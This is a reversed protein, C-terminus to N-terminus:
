NNFYASAARRVRDDLNLGVVLARWSSFDEVRSFRLLNGQPNNIVSSLAQPSASVLLTYSFSSSQRGAAERLAGSFDPNNGAPTIERISRKAADRDSAGDMRGSYIVRASSGASWITVRDGTALINDLRTSVWASVEDKVDSFSASGDIIINVDIPARESATQAYVGSLGFFVALVLPM